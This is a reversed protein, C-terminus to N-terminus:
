KRDVAFGMGMRAKGIAMGPWEAYKQMMERERTYGPLRENDDSSAPSRVLLTQNTLRARSM